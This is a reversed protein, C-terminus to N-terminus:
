LYLMTIAHRLRPGPGYSQNNRDNQQFFRHFCQYPLLRGRDSPLPEFVEMGARIFRKVATTWYGYEAKLAGVGPEFDMNALFRERSTM